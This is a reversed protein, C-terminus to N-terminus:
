SFHLVCACGHTPGLFTSTFSKEYWEDFAERRKANTCATDTRDTFNSTSRRPTTPVQPWEVVAMCSILVGAGVGARGVADFVGTRVGFLVATIETTNKSNVTEGPSRTTCARSQRLFLFGDVFLPPLLERLLQQLLGGHSSGIGLDTQLGSRRRSSSFRLFGFSGSGYRLRHQRQAASGPILRIM